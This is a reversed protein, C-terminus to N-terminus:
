DIVPNKSKKMIIIIKNKVENENEYLLLFVPHYWTLEGWILKEKMNGCTELQVGCHENCALAHFATVNAVSRMARIAHM